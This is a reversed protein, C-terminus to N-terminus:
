MWRIRSMLVIDGSQKPYKSKIVDDQTLGLLAWYTQVKELSKDPEEPRLYTM